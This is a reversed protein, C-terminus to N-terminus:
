VGEIEEIQNAIDSILKKIATIEIQREIIALAQDVFPPMKEMADHEYQLQTLKATYRALVRNLPEVNIKNM